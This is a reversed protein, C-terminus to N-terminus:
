ESLKNNDLKLYLGKPLFYGHVIDDEVLSHPIGISLPPEYRLLERYIAEIYPLDPRDTLNPLRNKGIVRDIEEQAKQQVHPNKAIVYLFVGMVSVIQIM